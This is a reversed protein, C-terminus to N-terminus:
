IFQLLWNYFDKMMEPHYSHGVGEYQKVKVNKSQQQLQSIVKTCATWPVLTDEKGALVLIHKRQLSPHIENKMRLITGPDDRQLIRLFSRPLYPPEVPLKSRRLRYEILEIYSPCGITSCGWNIREDVTLTCTTTTTVRRSVFGSLMVELVSEVYEGILLKMRMTLSSIVQSIILLCRYMTHQEVSFQICIRHM